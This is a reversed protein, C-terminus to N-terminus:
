LLVVWNVSGLSEPGKSWCSNLFGEMVEVGEVMVVDEGETVTLGLEEADNATIDEEGLVVAVVVTVGELLSSGWVDSEAPGDLEVTSSCGVDSITVAGVM